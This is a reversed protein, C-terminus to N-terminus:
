TEREEELSMTVFRFPEDFDVDYGAGSAPVRERLRSVPYANREIEVEIASWCQLVPNIPKLYISGCRAAPLAPVICDDRCDEILLAFADALTRATASVLSNEEPPNSVDFNLLPLNAATLTPSVTVIRTRISSM